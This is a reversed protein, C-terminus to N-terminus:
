ETAELLWDAVRLMLDIRHEAASTVLRPGGSFPGNGTGQSSTWPEDPLPHAAITNAVFEEAQQLICHRCVPQDPLVMIQGPVVEFGEPVEGSVFAQWPFGGLPDIGEPGNIDSM